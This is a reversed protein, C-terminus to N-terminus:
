EHTQVQMGERVAVLCTRVTRQGDVTALCDYCAGIGCFLGRPQQQHRTSRWASRAGELQLAAAVTRQAPVRLQTGDVVITVTGEPSSPQPPTSPRPPISPSSPTM